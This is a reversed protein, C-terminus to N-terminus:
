KIGLREKEQRYGGGGTPAAPAPAPPPAGTTGGRYAEVAAMGYATAAQERAAKKAQNEPLTPDLMPKQSRYFEAKAQTFVRFEAETKVGSPYEVEQRGQTKGAALKLEEEFAIKRAQDIQKPTAAQPDIDWSALIERARLSLNETTKESFGARSFLEDDAMNPFNEKLWRYKQIADPTAEPTDPKQKAQAEMGEFITMAEPLLTGEGRPLSQQAEEEGVEILGGRIEEIALDKKTPVTEAEKREKIATYSEKDLKGRFTTKPDYLGSALGKQLDEDYVEETRVEGSPLKITIPFKEGKRAKKAASIGETTAINWYQYSKEDTFSDPSPVGAGEMLDPFKKSYYNYARGYDARTQAGKLTHQFMTMLKAEDGLQARQEERQFKMLAFAKEYNAMPNPINLAGSQALQALFNEAM